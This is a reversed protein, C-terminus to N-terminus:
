ALSIDGLPPMYGDLDEYDCARKYVSTLSGVYRVRDAATSLDFADSVFVKLGDEMENAMGNEVNALYERTVRARAFYVASHNTPGDALRVLCPECVSLFPRNEFYKQAVALLYAVLQCNPNGHRRSPSVVTLLPAGAYIVAIKPYLIRSHGDYSLTFKDTPEGRYM